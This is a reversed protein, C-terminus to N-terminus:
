GPGFAKFKVARAILNQNTGFFGSKETLGFTTACLLVRALFHDTIVVAWVIRAAHRKKAPCRPSEAGATSGM